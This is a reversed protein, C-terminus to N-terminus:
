AITCDFVSFTRILVENFLHMPLKGKSNYRWCAETLYLHVYKDTIKIHTKRLGRKFHNWINEITNTHVVGRVYERGNHNIIEHNYYQNLKSYGRWSDTYITSGDEVNNKILKTITSSNRNPVLFLRAQKTNREVLGIIPQKRTSIGSWNYKTNGTGIFAEDAEIVGKMKFDVNNYLVMRIAMMLKHATKYSIGISKSVETASISSRSSCLMFIIFYISKLPITSRRFITNSLPYIYTGCSRCKFAKKSVGDKNKRTIRVYNDTISRNCKICKLEKFKLNFYLELCDDENSILQMFDVMGVRQNVVLQYKDLIYM